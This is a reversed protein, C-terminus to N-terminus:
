FTGELRREISNGNEAFKLNNFNTLRLNRYISLSFIYFHHYCINLIELDPVYELSSQLLFFKVEDDFLMKDGESLTKLWGSVNFDTGYKRMYTMILSFIRPDRDIFISGDKQTKVDWRGSVLMSFYTNPIKVLIDISCAFKTGGVDLVIPDELQSVQLKPELAMWVTKEKELEKRDEILQDRASGITEIMDKLNLTVNSSWELASSIDLTKTAM